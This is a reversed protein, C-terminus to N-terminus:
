EHATDIKAAEIAIMLKKEQDVLKKLLLSRFRKNVIAAIITSLYKKAMAQPQTDTSKTTPMLNPFNTALFNSAEYLKTNNIINAAQQDVSTAMAAMVEAQAIINKAASQAQHYLVPNIKKAQRLTLEARQWSLTVIKIQAQLTTLQNNLEDISAGFATIPLYILTTFILTNKFM